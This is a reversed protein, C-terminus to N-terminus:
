ESDRKARELEREAELQEIYAKQSAIKAEKAKLELERLDVEYATTTHGDKDTTQIQIPIADKFGNPDTTISKVPAYSTPFFMVTIKPYEISVSGTASSHKMAELHYTRESSDNVFYIQDTSSTFYYYGDDPFASQNIYACNPFKTRGGELTDIQFYVGNLGMTNYLAVQFKASVYVYGPGPPKITISHVNEMETTSSIGDVLNYSTRDIGPENLIQESSVQEVYAATDAHTAQEAYGTYDASDARLSQYAYGAYDTSDARLSQYAYGAYDASDARLSQYAYPVSHLRTRPSIEADSGVTIGLYRVSDEFLGEPFSPSYGLDFTFLGGNVYVNRSPATWLPTGNAKGEYISFTLEYSGDAVPVGTDDTLRGQYTISSPVEAVLITTCFLLIITLALATKM